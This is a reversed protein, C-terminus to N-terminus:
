LTQWIEIFNGWKQPFTISIHHLSPLNGDRAGLNGYHFNCWKSWRYHPFPFTKKILIGIEKM